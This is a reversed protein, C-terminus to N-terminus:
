VRSILFWELGKGQFINLIQWHVIEVCIQATRAVLASVQLNLMAISDLSELPIGCGDRVASELANPQNVDELIKHIDFQVVHTPLVEDHLAIISIELTFDVFHGDRNFHGEVRGVLNNQRVLCISLRQQRLM